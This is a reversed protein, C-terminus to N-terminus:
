QTNPKTDHVVSSEGTFEAEVLKRPDIGSIITKETPPPNLQERKVPRGLNTETVLQETGTAVTSTKQGQVNGHQDLTEGTVIIKTTTSSDPVNEAQAFDAFEKKPVPTEAVPHDFTREGLINKASKIFAQFHVIAAKEEDDIEPHELKSGAINYLDALRNQVTKTAEETVGYVKSNKLAHAVDHVINSLTLM